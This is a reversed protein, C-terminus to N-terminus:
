VLADLLQRIHTVAAKRRLEYQAAYTPGDYLLHYPSPSEDDVALENHHPLAGRLAFNDTVDNILDDPIFSIAESLRDVTSGRRQRGEKTMAYRGSILTEKWGM